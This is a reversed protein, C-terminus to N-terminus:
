WCCARDFGKDTPDAIHPRGKRNLKRVPLLSLDSAFCGSKFKSYAILSPQLRKAREIFALDSLSIKFTVDIEFPVHKSRKGQARTKGVTMRQDARPAENLREQETLDIGVFAGYDGMVVDVRLEEQAKEIWHKRRVALANIGVVVLRQGLGELPLEIPNDLFAFHTRSFGHKLNAGTPSRESSM